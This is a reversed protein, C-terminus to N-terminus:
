GTAPMLVTDIVHILGNSAEIDREVIRANNVRLGQATHMVLAEGQLSKLPAPEDGSAPAKVRRPVLHLRLLATLRVKEEPRFLDMLVNKSLKGFAYDNPAFLTHPGAAHFPASLGTAKIAAILHKFHGTNHLSDMLNDIPVVKTPGPAAVDPMVSATANMTASIM